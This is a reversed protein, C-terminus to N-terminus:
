SGEYNDGPIGAGAGAGTATYDCDPGWARHRVPCAAGCVGKGSWEIRRADNIWRRSRAFGSAFRLADCQVGADGPNIVVSVLIGHALRYKNARGSNIGDSGM